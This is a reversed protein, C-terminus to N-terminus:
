EAMVAQFGSEIVTYAMIDFIAGADLYKPDWLSEYRNRDEYAQQIQRDVEEKYIERIFSEDERHIRITNLIKEDQIKEETVERIIIAEEESITFKQRIQEIADQITIKKVPVPSGTRGGPSLKVPGGSCVTEVYTVNAKVVTTKRIQRMLDSVSGKKILQAGVLEALGVFSLIEAPYHFFGAMFYYVKVFKEL